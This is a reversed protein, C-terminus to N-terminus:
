YISRLSLGITTSRTDYLPVTSTNREHRMELVPVFGYVDLKPFTANTTFAFRDDSRRDFLSNIPADYEAIRWEAGLEIRATLIPEPLVYGVRMDLASGAVQTSDSQTDSLAVHFRLRGRNPLPTAWDLAIRNSLSSFTGDDLRNQNQVTWSVRAHRGKSPQWGYGFTLAQGNQYPDGGSLDRFIQTGLDFVGKQGPIRFKGRWGIALRDFSLDSASLDPDIDDAESGLSVRRGIYSLDFQSQRTQTSPLRWAVQATSWYEIGSIPRNALNVITIPGYSLTNSTPASNVNDSPKISFDFSYSLPNRTRVYDFEQRIAQKMRPDEAYQGARRLWIQARTKNGNASLAQAMRRATRAKEAKTSAQQFARRATDVGAKADGTGTQARSMAALLDPNDPDRKLLERLIVEAAAPQNDALLIDALRTATPVDITAAQAAEFPGFAAACLLWARLYRRM